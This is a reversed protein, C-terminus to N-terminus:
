PIIFALDFWFILKLFSLFVLLALVLHSINGSAIFDNNRPSLRKLTFLGTGDDNDDNDLNKKSVDM